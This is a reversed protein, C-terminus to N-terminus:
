PYAPSTKVLRKKIVLLFGSLLPFPEPIFNASTQIFFFHQQYIFEFFSVPFHMTMKQCFGTGPIHKSLAALFNRKKMEKRHKTKQPSRRDINRHLLSSNRDCFYFEIPFTKQATILNASNQPSKPVTRIEDWFRRQICLRKQFGRSVHFISFRLPRCLIEFVTNTFSMSVFM